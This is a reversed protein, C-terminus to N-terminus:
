HLTPGAQQEKLSRIAQRVKQAEDESMWREGTGRMQEMANLRLLAPSPKEPLMHVPVGMATLKERLQQAVQIEMQIFVALEPPDQVVGAAKREQARLLCDQIAQSTAKIDDLAEQHEEPIERARRTAEQIKAIMESGSYKSEGSFARKLLAKKLELSSRACGKTDSDEM